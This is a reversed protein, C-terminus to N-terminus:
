GEDDDDDEEREERGQLDETCHAADQSVGEKGAWLATM